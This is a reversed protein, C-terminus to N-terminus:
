ACEEFALREWQYGSAAAAQERQSGTHQQADGSWCHKCSATDSSGNISSVQSLTSAQSKPRAPQRANRETPNRLSQSRRLHRHVPGLIGHQRLAGLPQRCITHKKAQRIPQRADQGLGHRGHPQLAHRQSRRDPRRQRHLGREPTRDVNINASFLSTTSCIRSVKKHYDALKKERKELQAELDAQTQKSQLQASQLEASLRDLQEQNQRNIQDVDKNHQERLANQEERAEQEVSLLRAENMEKDSTVSQRMAELDALLDACKGELDNKAKEVAAIVRQAEEDAAHWKRMEQELADKSSRVGALEDRLQGNAADRDNKEAKMDSLKAELEEIHEESQASATAHDMEANAFEQKLRDLEEQARAQNERLNAELEEVRALLGENEERTQELDHAFEEKEAELADARMEVRSKNDELGTYARYLNDYQQQLEKRKEQEERLPAEVETCRRELDACANSFFTALVSQDQQAKNQLHEGLARQWDAGPPFPANTTQNLSQRSPTPLSSVHACAESTHVSSAHTEVLLPYMESAVDTQSHDAALAARLFLGCVAHAIAKRGSAVASACIGNTVVQSEQNNNFIQRLKALDQAVAASGLAALAGDIISENTRSGKSLCEVVAVMVDALEVVDASSGRVAFSTIAIIIDALQVGNLVGAFWLMSPESGSTLKETLNTAKSLLGALRDVMGEPINRSRCLSCIFAFAPLQVRTDLNNQSAKEQLKRVIIPNEACWTERTPEPVFMILENALGLCEVTQEVTDDATARSAWLVRLVILHLTKSAKDGNFYQKISKPKWRPSNPTSALLEQTEYSAVTSFSPDEDAATVIAKMIALCYLSLCQDEQGITNRLVALFHRELQTLTDHSLLGLLPALGGKLLQYIPKISSTSPQQTAHDVIGLFLTQTAAPLTIQPPLPHSLIAISATSHKWDGDVARAVTQAILTPEHKLLADRIKRSICLKTIIELVYPWQQLAQILNRALADVQCARAAAWALV